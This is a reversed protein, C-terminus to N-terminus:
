RYSLSRPVEAGSVVGAIDVLVAPPGGLVLYRESAKQAHALVLAPNAELAKAVATVEIVRARGVRESLAQEANDGLRGNGSEPYEFLSDVLQMIPAIRADPGRQLDKPYRLLSQLWALVTDAELTDGQNSLDGSQADALISSLVDLANLAELSPEVVRGGYSQMTKLDKLVGAAGSPFPTRPNRIVVIRRGASAGQALAGMPHRLSRGDRENRVSIEVKTGEPKQLIMDIRARDELPVPLSSLGGMAALIPAGSVLVQKARGVSVTHNPDTLEDDFTRTLFATPDMGLTHGRQLKEFQRACEALVSRPVCTSQKALDRLFSQNFPYFPLDTRTARLKSLGELPELRSLVLREVQDPRLPDLPVKRKQFRERDAGLAAENLAELQSSQLCTILCINPDADQLDAAMRGFRFFAEPDRAQRLLAEVQDFCFVIPLTDIALRCLGLVIRSGLTERDEDTDGGLGLSLLLPEPLLDGALWAAADSVDRNLVLHELVVRLDRPLGLRELVPRVQHLVAEADEKHLIRLFRITGRLDSGDYERIQHALLRQLQTLGQDVRMLDHALRRRLHQWLLQPATQLRVYVFICRLVRDPARERKRM